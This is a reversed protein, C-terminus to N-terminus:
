NFIHLHMLQLIWDKLIVTLLHFFFDLWGFLESSNYDPPHCKENGASSIADQSKDQFSEPGRVFSTHATGECGQSFSAHHASGPGPARAAGPDAPNPSFTTSELKLKKKSVFLSLSRHKNHEHACWV